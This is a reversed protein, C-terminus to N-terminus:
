IWEQVVYNSVDKKNTLNIEKEDILNCTEGQTETWHEALSPSNMGDEGIDLEVFFYVIVQLIILIVFM